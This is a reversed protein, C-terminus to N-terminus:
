AAEGSGPHKRRFAAREAEQQRHISELMLRAAERPDATAGTEQLHKLGAGSTTEIESAPKTSDSM